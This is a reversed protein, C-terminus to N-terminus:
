YSIAAAVDTGAGRRFGPNSGLHPKTAMPYVKKMRSDYFHTPAPQTSPGHKKVIDSISLKTM